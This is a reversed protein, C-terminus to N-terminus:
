KKPALKIKGVKITRGKASPQPARAVRKTHPPKEHQPKKQKEAENLSELLMSSRQSLINVDLPDDFGIPQKPKGFARDMATAWAKQDPSRKYVRTIQGEPDRVEKFHGLAADRIAQLWETAEAKIQEALQNRFEEGIITSSNKPRGGKRGNMRSADGAM